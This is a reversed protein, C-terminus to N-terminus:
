LFFFMALSSFFLLGEQLFSLAFWFFLYQSVFFMVRWVCEGVVVLVGFTALVDSGSLLSGQDVRCRGGPPVRCLGHYRVIGISLCIAPFYRGDGPGAVGQSHYEAYGLVFYALMRGLCLPGLFYANETM